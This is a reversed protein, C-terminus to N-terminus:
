AAGTLEKYAEALTRTVEGIKENGVAHREVRTVPMVEMVANTLFVEDAGLLDNITCPRQECDIGRKQALEIVAARTVGPLVPTDLPPTILKGERVIFVNSMCGEALFNDPTFWLAEGCQKEQADRLALLRPFYSTTKHGALPDLSSQRYRTHVYVTMGREYLQSPYGATAEARVLLTGHEVDEMTGPPTVTIRVRASTLNNAALVEDVAAPIKEILDTIPMSLRQASARLREVHEALRFPKGNYTRLTEFLGVGHLFAPNSVSVHAEGGSVLHGNLYIKESM